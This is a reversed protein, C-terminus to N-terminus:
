WKIIISVRCFGAGQAYLAVINGPKLLGKTEAEELNAIIGCPGLHAYKEFTQVAANPPLGLSRAIGEPVWKRPQVSIVLDIDRVSYKTRAIAKRITDKGANITNMILKKANGSDHSGLYFAKDSAMWWPTDDEQKGRTYTVSTYHEGESAAFSSVITHEDTPGMLIATACDGVNPSAPHMIPWGRLVIHSQVLMIYKAQGSEILSHAVIMQSLTSACATDLGMCHARVAGINFGVANASSPMIRDPLTSFCIVFDLESGKIQNRELVAKAARTEAEVSTVPDAIRRQVTGFFPDDAEANLYDVVMADNSDTAHLDVLTKLEEKINKSRFNDVFAQPWSDNERITEPFWTAFGIIGPKKM